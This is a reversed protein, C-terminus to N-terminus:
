RRDITRHEKGFIGPSIQNKNKVALKYESIISKQELLAIEVMLHIFNSPLKVLPMLGICFCYSQLHQANSMTSQSNEKHYQLLAGTYQWRLIRLFICCLAERQIVSAKQIDGVRLTLVMTPSKRMCRQRLFSNLLNRNCSDKKGNFWMM